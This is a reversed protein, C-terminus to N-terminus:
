SGEITLLLAPSSCRIGVNAKVIFGQGPSMSVSDGVGASGGGCEPASGSTQRFEFASNEPGLNVALRLKEASEMGVLHAGVATQVLNCRCEQPLDVQKFQLFELVKRAFEHFREVKVGCAEPSSWSFWPLRSCAEILHRPLEILEIIEERDPNGIERNQEFKDACFRPHVRFIIDSKKM